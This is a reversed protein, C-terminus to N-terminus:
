RAVLGCGENTNWESFDRLGRTSSDRAGFQTEKRFVAGNLTFRHGDAGNKLRPGGGGVCRGVVTGVVPGLSATSVDAHIDPAVDVENVAHGIIPHIKIHRFRDLRGQRVALVM